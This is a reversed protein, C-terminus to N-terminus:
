ESRRVRWVAVIESLLLSYSVYSVNLPLTMNPASHTYDNDAAAPLHPAPKRCQRVAISSSTGAQINCRHVRGFVATHPPLRLLMHVIDVDCTERVYVIALFFFFFFALYFRHLYIYEGIGRRFVLFCHLM